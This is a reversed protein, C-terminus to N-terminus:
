LILVKHYGQFSLASNKNLFSFTKPMTQELRALSMSDMGLMLVNYKCSNKTRRKPQTINEKIFAFLDNYVDFNYNQNACRCVVDIFDSELTINM